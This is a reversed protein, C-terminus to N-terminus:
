EFIKRFLVAENDLKFASLWALYFILANLRVRNKFSLQRLLDYYAKSLNTVFLRIMQTSVLTNM